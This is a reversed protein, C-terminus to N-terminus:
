VHVDIAFKSPRESVNFFSDVSICNKHTDLLLMNLMQFNPEGALLALIEHEHLGQNRPCTLKFLKLFVM